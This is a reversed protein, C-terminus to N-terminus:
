EEHTGISSPDVSMGQSRVSTDDSSLCNSMIEIQTAASLVEYRTKNEPEIEELALAADNFMGLSLIGAQLLSMGKGIPKSSNEM